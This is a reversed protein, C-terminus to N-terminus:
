YIGAEKQITAISVPDLAHEVGAQKYCEKIFRDPKFNRNGNIDLKANEYCHQTATVTLAWLNGQHIAIKGILEATSQYDKRTWKAGPM